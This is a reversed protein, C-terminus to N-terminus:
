VARQGAGDHRRHGYQFHFRAEIDSTVRHITQHVKQRLSRLEPPLKAATGRFRGKGPAATRVVREVLGWVRNLFRFSGAVGQDSWELDREPPAAFLCFLRTTDAGYAKIM